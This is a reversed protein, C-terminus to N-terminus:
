IAALDLGVIEDQVKVETRKYHRHIWNWARSISIGKRLFDIFSGIAIIILMLVIVSTMFIVADYASGTAGFSNLALLVFFLSLYRKM